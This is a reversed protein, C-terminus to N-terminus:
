RNRPTMADAPCSSGLPIKCRREIEALAARERLLQEIAARVMHLRVERYHDPDLQELLEQM